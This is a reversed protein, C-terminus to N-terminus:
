MSNQTGPIEELLGVFYEISEGDDSSLTGVQVRNEFKRGTKTYNTLTARSYHERRLTAVMDRAVSVDTEPGNLMKGLHQQKAEERSYGCLGVWAENVDVVEFPSVASTVVIPRPDSLAESLTKPLSKEYQSSTQEKMKANLYEARHNVGIASEPCSTLLLMALIDSSTQQAPENEHTVATSNDKSLMETSPILGTATEPKQLMRLMTEQIQDNSFGDQYDTGNEHPYWSLTATSGNRIQCFSRRLSNSLLTTKSLMTFSHITTIPQHSSNPSPKVSERHEACKTFSFEHPINTDFFDTIRQM